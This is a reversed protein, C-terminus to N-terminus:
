SCTRLRGRLRLDSGARGFGRRCRQRAGTHPGGSGVKGTPPALSRGNRGYGARHGPRDVDARSRHGAPLPAERMELSFRSTIPKAPLLFPPSENGAQGVAAVPSARWGLGAAVASTSWCEASTGDATASGGLWLKGAVPEIVLAVCDSGVAPALTRSMTATGAGLPSGAALRTALDAADAPLAM